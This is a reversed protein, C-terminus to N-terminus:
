KFFYKILNVLIYIPIIAPIALGKFFSLLLIILIIFLYRIHNEKWKLNKFKLSFMPIPSVLLLSQIYILPVLFFLNDISFNLYYGANLKIIFPLSAFVIANAPTPLGIFLTTQREDINFKALRLASFVVIFFPSILYFYDMLKFDVNTQNIMLKMKIISFVIFAPAMGFSILDALSDLQKGLPSYANLTRAAFGDLFDFVAAIFIFVAAQILYGEMSLAVSICGSLVNLSTIFNPIHKKINM